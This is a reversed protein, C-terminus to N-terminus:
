SKEDRQELEAARVSRCVFAQEFRSIGVRSGSEPGAVSQDRPLQFLEREMADENDRAHKVLVLLDRNPAKM